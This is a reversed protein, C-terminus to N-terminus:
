LFVKLSACLFFFIPSIWTRSLNRFETGFLSLDKFLKKKNRTLNNISKLFLVFTKHTEPTITILVVPWFINKQQFLFDYACRESKKKKKWKWIKRHCGATLIILLLFVRSQIEGLYKNKIYISSSFLKMLLWANLTSLKIFLMSSM